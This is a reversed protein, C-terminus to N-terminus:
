LNPPQTNPKEGEEEEEKEEEDDEVRLPEYFNSPTQPEQTKGYDEGRAIAEALKEKFQTSGGTHPPLNSTPNFFTQPAFKIRRNRPQHDKTLITPLLPTAIPPEPQPEEQTQEAQEDQRPDNGARNDENTMLNSLEQLKETVTPLLHPVITGQKPMQLANKLDTVAALIMDAPTAVPMAIREPMWTLTGATRESRTKDVYVTHLRYHDLAPGVYWGEVAHDSWTGRQEPAEHILVKIGPPAFPTRNYDFRGNIQEWASLKPNIRSGRLLNLTLEAQPILRDWLKLPFDKECTALGAIFHNKATRIAREAANRKHDHPVDIQFDVGNDRLFDLVNSPAENDLRQYIPKCGSKTLRKHIDQHAELLPEKKKNRLGRLFIMNSDYHYACFITKTGRNSTIPFDGTQDTYLTEKAEYVTIFVQHTKINGSDSEPFKDEDTEEQDRPRTTRYKQRARDLHGKITANLNPPYKKLSRKSLGPIPPIFGKTLAKNLTSIAPSFLSAHAFAVLDRPNASPNANVARLATNKYPLKMHWLGKTTSNRTGTLIVYDDKTVVAHDKQLHIKCGHDALIGISLLSTKGLEKFMHCQRASEPLGPIYITGQHTSKM